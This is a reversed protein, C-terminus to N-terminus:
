EGPREKGHFMVVSYGKRALDWAAAFAALGDGIVAFSKSKRPIPLPRTQREAGQASWAELRGVALPGGLKQRLCAAECPHDCILAFFGPLPLHRELLRRASAAGAPVAEMFARVDMQLPCAARCLPMEEQICRSEWVRLENQEM